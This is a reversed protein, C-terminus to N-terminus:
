YSSTSTGDRIDDFPRFVRKPEPPLTPSAEVAPKQLVVETKPRSKERRAARTLRGANEILSQQRARAQFITREDVPEKRSRVEKVAERYQWISMRPRFTDRYPIPSYDLLEPDWFYIISIDRPDRKFIFTQPKRAKGSSADISNVWRRLVDHYYHIRDIVVGYDRISREVYPMFDLRLRREDVIRPPPGGRAQMGDRYRQLPTTDLASHNRQHYIEVIYRTLWEELEPLTLVARGESDYEQRQQPNSFTTGPLTHLERLLTGLLREIHGGYEPRAAPRWTIDFGYETAAKRLMVGRFEKANDLHLTDPIGWCPWDGDVNLQKLKKEKPLIAHALCLGTGMAGPPDFSVHFGVVMRSFVDMALTIWPRGVICTRDQEDVLLIDLPTHDIQVTALPRSVIHHGLKPEYAEHAARASHRRELQLRESVASIRKYITNASPAVLGREACRARVEICAQKRSRRQKTLFFDEITLQIVEEVEPALRSQGTGGRGPRNALASVRGTTQLRARWRYITSPHIALRAAVESVGQQNDLSLSQLVAMRQHAIKQQAATLQEAVPARVIADKDVEPLQLEALPLRGVIGTDVDRALVHVLDELLRKIVYLRGQFHVTEGPHPYLQEKM